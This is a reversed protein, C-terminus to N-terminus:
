CGCGLVPHILGFRDRIVNGGIVDVTFVHIVVNGDDDIVRLTVNFRGSDEFAHTVIGGYKQWPTKEYRQGLDMIPHDGFDWLYNIIEGDPDVSRCAFFEVEDNVYIIRPSRVDITPKILTEDSELMAIASSQHGSGSQSYVILMVPSFTSVLPAGVRLQITRTEGPPIIVMPQPISISIEEPDDLM